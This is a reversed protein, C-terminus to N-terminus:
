WSFYLLFDSIFFQPSSYFFFFVLTGLPVSWVGSYLSCKQLFNLNRLLDNILFCSQMIQLILGLLLYKLIEICSVLICETQQQQMGIQLLLRKSFPGGWQGIKSGGQIWRQASRVLFGLCMHLVMIVEDRGLKTLMWWDTRYSLCYTGM